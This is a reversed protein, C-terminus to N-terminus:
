GAAAVLLPVFDRYIRTESVVGFPLTAALLALYTAGLAFRGSRMFHVSMAIVVAYIMMLYLPTVHVGFDTLAGGVPNFKGLNELLRSQYMEGGQLAKMIGVGFAGCGLGALVLSHHRERSGEIVMWLAIFMASQRNFIAVAFLAAFWWWPKSSVVFCVFAMFIVPELIDWSMFFSLMTAIVGLHYIALGAIGSVEWALWGGALAALFVLWLVASRDNGLLRLLEPGLLRSHYVNWDYPRLPMNVDCVLQTMRMQVLAFATLLALRM